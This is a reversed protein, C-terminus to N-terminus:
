EYRYEKPSHLVNHHHTHGVFIIYADNYIIKYAYLLCDVCLYIPLTGLGTERGGNKFSEQKQEEKSCM